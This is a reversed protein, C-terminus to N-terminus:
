LLRFVKPLLVPLAAMIAVLSSKPPQGSRGVERVGVGGRGWGQARSATQSSMNPAHQFNFPFDIPSLMSGIELCPTALCTCPLPHPPLQSPCSICDCKCQMVILNATSSASFTLQRSSVRNCNCNCNDYTLHLVTYFESEKKRVCVCACACVCVRDCVCKGAFIECHFNGGGKVLFCPLCHALGRGSQSKESASFHKLFALVLSQCHSVKGRTTTAAKPAVSAVYSACM